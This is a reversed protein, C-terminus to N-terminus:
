EDMWDRLKGLSAPDDLAFFERIQKASVPFFNNADIGVDFRRIGLDRNTENYEVNAHIHGHLHVAGRRRNPWTLLPYHMLTIDMGEVSIREFDTACEYLNDCSRKDHNGRILIKKGNLRVLLKPIEDISLKYSLDGLIYVTDEKGVVANYNRILTENMEEVTAFPRLCAPIIGAHGLHLDSTFYIM